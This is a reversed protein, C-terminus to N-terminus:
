DLIKEMWAMNYWRDFKYGCRHFEGVKKFGLHEHFQVSNFNLYEDEKLDPVGICAYLNKIGMEKLTDELKKYLLRGIGQKHHNKDIYISLETSFRYAERGVFPGAYAYGVIRNDILAVFYPYKELTREMRRRFEEISPISYEFSIATNLVYHGYIGLIEKADDTTALRTKIERM